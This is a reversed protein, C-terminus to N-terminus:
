AYMGPLQHTHTHCMYAHVCSETFTSAHQTHMDPAVCLIIMILLTCEVCPQNPFRVVAGPASAHSRALAGDVDSQDLFKLPKWHVTTLCVCVCVCRPFAMLQLEANYKAHDFHLAICQLCRAIGKACSRLKQICLFLMSSTGAHNELHHRHIIMILLSCVFILIRVLHLERGPDESAGASVRQSVSLCLRKETRACAELPSATGLRSSCGGAARECESRNDAFNCCQLMTLIVHREMCSSAAAAVALLLTGRAM